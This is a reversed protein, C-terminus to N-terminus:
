NNVGHKVQPTKNTIAEFTYGTAKGYRIIDRVANLTKYNKEYDHMLVINTKNHSLGNIVSQYVAEKTYVDGADGSSVNWDYYYYGRKKVEKVLKTMIGKQYRRSVTNSSGGPFRIINSKEGTIQEVKKQIRELDNFYAQQSQYVNKYNHSYSHLAVTHGEQHERKILYDLSSNHNIVFFTAKVKEEKLIDLLKSTITKSPGDDFTLYIVGKRNEEKKNALVVINRDIKAENGSSDSLSYEVTYVGPKHRNLNSKIKVKNNLNGDCNDTAIFGPEQYKEGMKLAMNKKGKLSLIPSIKDEKIIKRRVISKNGSSDQVSFLIEGDKETVKVQDTIDGDYNDIAKYNFKYNKIDFSPCVYFNTNDQLIIEPKEEDVVEIDRMITKSWFLYQLQYKEQYKGIKNPNINNSIKVKKNLSKFFNKAQYKATQYSQGYNIKTNKEELKIEPISAIWLFLLFASIGIFLFQKNITKRKQNWEM